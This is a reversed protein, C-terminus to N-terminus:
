TAVQQQGLAYLQIREVVWELTVDSIQFPDRPPAGASTTIYTGHEMLNMVPDDTFVAATMPYSSFYIRNILMGAGKAAAPNQLITHPGWRGITQPDLEPWPDGFSAGETGFSRIVDQHMRKAADYLPVTLDSVRTDLGLLWAELDHLKEVNIEALGWSM